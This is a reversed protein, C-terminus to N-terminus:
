YFLLRLQLYFWVEPFTPGLVHCVTPVLSAFFGPKANLKETAYRVGRRLVRRLVYSYFAFNQNLMFEHCRFFLYNGEAWTIPGAEM